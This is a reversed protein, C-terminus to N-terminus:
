QKIIKFSKRYKLDGFAAFYMGQPLQSVDFTNSSEINVASKFVTKGSLDILSFTTTNDSPSIVTIFDGVPNPYVSFQNQAPDDIATLESATIEFAVFQGDDPYKVDYIYLKVIGTGAMSNANLTIRIFGNVSDPLPGFMSSDPIGSYCGYNDCSSYFWKSLFTNEVLRWGFSAQDSAPHEIEVRFHKFEDLGIQETIQDGPIFSFTQNQTIATSAFIIWAIIFLTINKM